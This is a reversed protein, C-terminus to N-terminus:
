ARRKKILHYVPFISLLVGIIILFPGNAVGIHIPDDYLWDFHDIIRPSLQIYTGAIILLISCGLIIYLNFDRYQSSESTKDKREM